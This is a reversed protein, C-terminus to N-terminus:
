RGVEKWRGEIRFRGPCKGANSGGRGEDERYTAVRVGESVAELRAALDSVARTGVACGELVYGGETEEWSELWASDPMSRSLRLVSGLARVRRADVARIAGVLAEVEARRTRLRELKEEYPRLREVEAVVARREAEVRRGAWWLGGAALVVVVLGALLGMGFGVPRRAGLGSPRVERLAAAVVAGPTVEEVDAVVEVARALDSPAGRRVRESGYVEGVDGVVEGSDTYVWVPAGSAGEVQAEGAMRVGVLSGAGPWVASGGLERVYVAEDGVMLAAAGSDHGVWLVWRPGDGSPTGLLAVLAAPVVRVDSAGRRRLEAGCADAEARFLAAWLRGRRWVRLAGPPAPVHAFVEQPESGVDATRLWVATGGVAARVSGSVRDEVGWAERRGDSWVVARGYEVYAGSARAASPGGPRRGTRVRARAKM